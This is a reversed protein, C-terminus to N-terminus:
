HKTGAITWYNNRYFNDQGDNCCLEAVVMNGSSTSIRNVLIQVFLDGRTSISFKIPRYYYGNDKIAFNKGNFISLIESYNLNKVTYLPSSSNEISDSFNGNVEIVDAPIDPLKEAPIDPIFKEDLKKIKVINGDWTIEPTDSDASAIGTIYFVDPVSTFYVGKKPYVIPTEGAPVELNDTTIFAVEGAKFSGNGLDTYDEPNLTGNIGNSAWIKILADVSAWFPVEDAVKVAQVGDGVDVAVKSDDYALRDEWKAKGEGDTVLQKYAKGESGGVLSLEDNENMGLFNEDLKFGGCPVKSM